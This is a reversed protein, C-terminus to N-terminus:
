SALGARERAAALFRQARADGSDIGRVIWRSGDSLAVMLAPNSSRLQPLVVFGIDRVNPWPIPRRLLSPHPLLAEPAAKAAYEDVWRWAFRVTEFWLYFSLLSIPVNVGHWNLPEALRFWEGRRGQALEALREPFLAACAFLITALVLLPLLFGLLGTRWRVAPVPDESGLSM